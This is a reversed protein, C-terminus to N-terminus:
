PFSDKWSRTSLTITWRIMLVKRSMLQVSFHRDIIKTATHAPFIHM